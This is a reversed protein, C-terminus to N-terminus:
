KYLHRGGIGYFLPLLNFEIEEASIIEANEIAHKAGARAGIAWSTACMAAMLMIVAIIKEYTKVSHM